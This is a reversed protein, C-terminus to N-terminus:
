DDEDDEDGVVTLDNDIAFQILRSHEDTGDLSSCIRICKGDVPCVEICIKGDHNDIGHVLMSAWQSPRFAKGDRTTGKVVTM